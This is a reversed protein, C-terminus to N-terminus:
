SKRSFKVVLWVMAMIISSIALGLTFWPTQNGVWKDLYWGGFSFLGIFAVLQFGM